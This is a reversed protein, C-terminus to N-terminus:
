LCLRVRLWNRGPVHHFGTEHQVVGWFACTPVVGSLSGITTPITAELTVIGGDPAVPGSDSYHVLKNWNRVAPLPGLVCDAAWGYIIAPLRGSNKMLVYIKPQVSGM